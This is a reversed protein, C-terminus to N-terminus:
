SLDLSCLDASPKDNMNKYRRLETGRIKVKELHDAAVVKVKAKASAVVAVRVARAVTSENIAAVLVVKV